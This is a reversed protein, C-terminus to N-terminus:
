TWGISGAHRAATKTVPAIHVAEAPIDHLDGTSPDFFHHHSSINTDFYVRSSDIVVQRLLGAETFQHLANYVTALSM